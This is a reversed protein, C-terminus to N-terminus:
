IGYVALHKYFGFVLLLDEAYIMLLFHACM